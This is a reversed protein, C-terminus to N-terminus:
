YSYMVPLKGSVILFMSISFLMFISLLETVPVMGVIKPNNVSISDNFRPLLWSLLDSGDSSPFKICSLTSSTPFLAIEPVKGNHNCLKLWKLANLADWFLIPPEIADSINGSGERLLDNSLWAEVNRVELKQSERWSALNKVFKRVVKVIGKQVMLIKQNSCFDARRQIWELFITRCSWTLIAWATLFTKWQFLKSLSLYGLLGTGSSPECCCILWPLVWPVPLVWFNSM